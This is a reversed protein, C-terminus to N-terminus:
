WIAQPMCPSCLLPSCGSQNPGHEVSASIRTLRERVRLIDSLFAGYADDGINAVAGVSMGLRAAAILFNCSAGVEWAAEPPAEATLAALFAESKVEHVPPMQAFCSLPAKLPM